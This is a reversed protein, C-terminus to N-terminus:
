DLSKAAWKDVARRRFQMCAFFFPMRRRTTCAEEGTRPDIYRRPARDRLEFAGFGLLDVRKGKLIEEMLVELFSNVILMATKYNVDARAAVINVVDRKNM